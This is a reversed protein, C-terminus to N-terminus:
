RLRENTSRTAETCRRTAKERERRRRENKSGKMYPYNYETLRDIHSQYMYDAGLSINIDDGLCPFQVTQKVQDMQERDINMPVRIPLYEIPKMM